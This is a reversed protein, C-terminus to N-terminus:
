HRRCLHALSATLHLRTESNEMLREATQLARYLLFKVSEVSPHVPLSVDATASLGLAAVLNETLKEPGFQISGTSFRTSSNSQLSVQSRQHFQHYRLQDRFAQTQKGKTKLKAINKKVDQATLWVGGSDIMRKELDGQAKFAKLLNAEKKAKSEDVFRKRVIKM